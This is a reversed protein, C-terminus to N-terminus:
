RRTGPAAPGSRGSTPHHYGAADALGSAVLQPDPEDAATERIITLDGKTEYIAYRVDALDLVGQQRVKALIDNETVGCIRLQDQRLQGHDILVRVRHDVLKAVLPSFRGVSIVYHATLITALAVAGVAFSQTGAIATRGTIAGIAVAAAFDIATWQALTRRQSIRLGILAVLYILTAKAAVAGLTQWDGTLWHM